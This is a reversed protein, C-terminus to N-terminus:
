PTASVRVHLGGLTITSVGGLHTANADTGSWLAGEYDSSNPPTYNTTNNAASDDAIGCYNSQGDTTALFRFGMLSLSGTVSGTAIVEAYVLDGPVVPLDCTVSNQAPSSPAGVTIVQVRTDVTGGSGDQKVGNKYLVFDYTGGFFSGVKRAYFCTISGAAGVVNVVKDANTQWELQQCFVGNCHASQDQPVNISGGTFCHGSEGANTSEFEISVHVSFNGLSAPTGSPTCSMSLLGGPAITFSHTTDRATTATDAIPVTLTTDVGDKRVTFTWSKGTGPATTITIVLNRFTGDTPWPAQRGSEDTGSLDLVQTPNEYTTAGTNPNFSQSRSFFVKKVNIDM